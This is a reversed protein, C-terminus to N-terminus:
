RGQEKTEGLAYIRRRDEERRYRPGRVSFRLGRRAAKLADPKAAELAAEYKSLIQHIADRVPISVMYARLCKDIAENLEKASLGETKTTM